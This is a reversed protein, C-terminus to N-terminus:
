TGCLAKGKIPNVDNALWSIKNGAVSGTVERIFQDNRMFRGRYTGGKRELIILTHGANDKWMSGVQIVDAAAGASCLEGSGIALWLLFGVLWCMVRTKM